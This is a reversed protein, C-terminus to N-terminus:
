EVTNCTFQLVHMYLVLTIIYMYTVVHMHMCQQSKKRSYILTRSLFTMLVSPFDPSSVQATCTYDGIDSQQFPEFNLELTESNPGSQQLVTNDASLWQLTADVDIGPDASSINCTFVADQNLIIPDPDM